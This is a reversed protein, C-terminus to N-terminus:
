SAIRWAILVREPLKRGGFGTLNYFGHSVFEVAYRRNAAACKNPRM